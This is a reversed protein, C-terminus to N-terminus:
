IKGLPSMPYRELGLQEIQACGSLRYTAAYNIINDIRRRRSYYLRMFVGEDDRHPALRAQFRRPLYRAVVGGEKPFSHDIPCFGWLNSQTDDPPYVVRQGLRRALIALM